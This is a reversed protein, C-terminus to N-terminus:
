SSRRAPATKRLTPRRACRRSSRASTAPRASATLALEERGLDLSEARAHGSYYFFVETDAGRARAQGLQLQLLDFASLLGRRDPDELLRVHEAAFGGFEVLVDRVRAADDDAFQLPAQGPGGRNSGVLLAYAEHSEAALAPSAGLCLPAAALLTRPKM